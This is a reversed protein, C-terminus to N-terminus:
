CTTTIKSVSLPPVRRMASEMKRLSNLLIIAEKALTRTQALIGVSDPYTKILENIIDDVLLLGDRATEVATEYYILPCETLYEGANRFFV